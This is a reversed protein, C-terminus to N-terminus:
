AGGTAEEEDEEKVGGRLLRRSRRESSRSRGSRAATSRLMSAIASFSGLMELTWAAVTASAGSAGAEPLMPLVTTRSPRPTAATPSPSHTASRYPCPTMTSPLSTSSLIPNQSATPHALRRASPPLPLPLLALGPPLSLPSLLSLSFLSRSLLSLSLVSRSLRSIPPPHTSSSHIPLSYHILPDHRHIRAEQTHTHPTALVRFCTSKYSTPSM